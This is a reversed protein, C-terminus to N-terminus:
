GSCASSSPRAPPRSLRHGARAAGQIGASRADRHAREPRRHDPRLGIPQAYLGGDPDAFVDLEIQRIGQTDFQEPLPIHTYELTKPSTRRQLCRHSSLLRPDSQVHYSNHSGLVQIQNLRLEDDRPYPPPCGNLARRVAAILEYVLVAGDGDLDLSACQAVSSRGLAVGIGDVLEGITVQGNGDCDGECASAAGVRLPGAMTLALTASAAIQLVRHM